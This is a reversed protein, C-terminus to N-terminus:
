PPNLGTERGDLARVKWRKGSDDWELLGDSFGPPTRGVLAVRRPTSRIEVVQGSRDLYGHALKDSSAAFSGGVGVGPHDMPAELAGGRPLFVVRLKGPMVGVLARSGDQFDLLSSIGSLPADGVPAAEVEAAPTPAHVVRAVACKTGDCTVFVSDADLASRADIPAAAYDPSRLASRTAPDWRMAQGEAAILVSGNPGLAIRIEAHEVSSMLPGFSPGLAGTPSVLHVALSDLAVAYSGGSCCLIERINGNLDIPNLLTPSGSRLGDFRWIKNDDGGGILRLTSPDCAIATQDREIFIGGRRAQYDDILAESGFVKRGAKIDYVVIEDEDSAYAVEDPRDPMVIADNVDQGTDYSQAAGTRADILTITDEYSAVVVRDGGPSFRMRHPRDVGSSAARVTLDPYGIVRLEVQSALADGVGFAIQTGDPSAAMELIPPPVIRALRTLTKTEHLWIGTSAHVVFLTGGGIPAITLAQNIVFQTKGPGVEILSGRIPAGTVGRPSRAGPAFAAGPDRTKTPEATFTAGVGPPAPVVPGPPATPLGPLPPLPPLPPPGTPPLSCPACLMGCCGAAGLAIM